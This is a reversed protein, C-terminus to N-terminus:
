RDVRFRRLQEEDLTVGLGPGDPVRAGDPLLALPETLLDAEHYHPGLIDAPYATSDINPIASALQLM